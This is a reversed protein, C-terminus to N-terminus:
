FNIFRVCVPETCAINKQLLSLKGTEADRAFLTLNSTNQNACVVFDGSPDLDFDRPFEGETAILQELTLETGTANIAFVALSNHGRNSVYLFRGDHSIRIAAAGNHATFDAPITAITQLHTFAGTGQDYRLVEVASGLEGVLYALSAHPHFIIHRPGFGAATHYVAVESIQGERTVDYTFVEDTGLDCTVLRQEPTLGAFHVHASAQEPKPGHGQDTITNVLELGGNPLIRHILLQGSHYKASYVLQRPEDVAVYAPSSGSQLSKNILKPAPADSLEYAALGGANDEALVSYLRQAQSVALYTPNGATIYASPQSLHRLQTNLTARYIGSGANRTYSGLLLNVSM